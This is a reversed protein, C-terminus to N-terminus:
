YPRPLDLTHEAVYNLIMEKSIPATRVLRASEWHHAIGYEDSFGYGGHTQIARDAATIWLEAAKYKAANALFGVEMPPLERDFAWAAHRAALRCAELEIKIEALPHAVGQHTGIPKDGFVKRDKAYAVSRDLLFQTAGVASAAALIREPNLSNFLSMTGGNEFGVLEDAHVVVDDFRIHFQRAGEIGRMPLANMSIGARKTDILFLSLGFMKPLGQANVDARSTTRAVILMKDAQDAGTIFV